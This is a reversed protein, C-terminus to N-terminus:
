WNPAACSVARRCREAIKPAAHGLTAFVNGGFGVLLRGGAVAVGAEGGGIRGARISGSGCARKAVEIGACSVGSVGRLSM